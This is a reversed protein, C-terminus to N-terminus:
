PLSSMKSDPAPFALSREFCRIKGGGGFCLYQLYPYFPLLSAQQPFDHPSVMSYAAFGTKEDCLRRDKLM